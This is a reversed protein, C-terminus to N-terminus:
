SHTIAYVFLLGLGVWVPIMVLATLVFRRLATLALRAVASFPRRAAVNETADIALADGYIEREHAYLERDWVSMEIPPATLGRRIQEPTFGPFLQELKEDIM